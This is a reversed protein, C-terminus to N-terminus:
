GEKATFRREGNLFAAILFSGGGTVEFVGFSVGPAGTSRSRADDLAATETDAETEGYRAPSTSTAAIRFTTM